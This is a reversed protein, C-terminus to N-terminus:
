SCLNLLLLIFLAFLFLLTLMRKVSSFNDIEKELIGEMTKEPRYCGYKKNVRYHYRVLYAVM